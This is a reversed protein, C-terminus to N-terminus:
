DRLEVALVFYSGKPLRELVQTFNLDFTETEGAKVSGFKTGGSGVGLLQDQSDFVAVCFGPVRSEKSANTVEVQARVGFDTGKFLGRGERRNFFITNLKLGDVEDGLQITKDWFYKYRKSFFSLPRLADAKAQAEPMARAPEAQPSGAQLLLCFLTPLAM